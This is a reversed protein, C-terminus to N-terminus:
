TFTGSVFINKKVFIAVHIHLININYLYLIDHRYSTYSHILFTYTYISLFKYSVQYNFLFYTKKYNIHRKISLISILM